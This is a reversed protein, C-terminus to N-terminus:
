PQRPGGPLPAAGAPPPSLHTPDAPPAIPKAGGNLADIQERVRDSKRTLAKMLAQETKDLESKQARVRKVKELLEEISLDDPNPEPRVSPAVGAAPPLEVVPKPPPTALLPPAPAPPQATAEVVALGALVVAALALLHRTKM